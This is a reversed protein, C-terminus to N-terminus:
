QPQLLSLIRHLDDQSFYEMIIRGRKKGQIVRVRTGFRHQLSEEINQVFADRNRKAPRTPGFLKKRVLQEAQRVSMGKKVIQDCCKIMDKENELSLLSKAHGMSLRNEEILEQVKPPLELLRLTNTVTTRDKSVRLSITDHTLGFDVALRRYARAEEMRNLEERQINEILSIELLDADNVQKIIVPVEKIGALQVARFRREGAIIEYKDGKSRVLIPQIVGKEKISEALEKLRTESFFKRPQLESTVMQETGITQIKEKQEHGEPILASLGRGLVNREM